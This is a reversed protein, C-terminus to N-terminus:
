RRVVEMWRLSRALAGTGAPPSLVRSTAITLPVSDLGPIAVTRPDGQRASTSTIKRAATQPGARLRKGRRERAMRVTPDVRAAAGGGPRIQM